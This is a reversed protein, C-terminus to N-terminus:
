RAPNRLTVVSELQYLRAADGAEVCIGYAGTGRREVSFGGLGTVVAREAGGSRRVLEGNRLVYEVEVADQRLKLLNESVPAADDPVLVETACRLDRALFDLALRGAMHDFSAATAGGWVALLHGSVAAVCAAVVGLLAVAALLEVLTSGRRDAPWGSWARRRM